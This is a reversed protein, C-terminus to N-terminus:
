LKGWVVVLNIQKVHLITLKGQIPSNRVYKFDAHPICTVCKNETAPLTM